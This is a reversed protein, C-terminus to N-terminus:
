PPPEGKRPIPAAGWPRPLLCTAHFKIHLFTNQCFHRFFCFPYGAVAQRRLHEATDTQFAASRCLLNGHNRCVQGHGNEQFLWRFHYFAPADHYICPQQKVDDGVRGAIDDPEPCIIFLVHDSDPRLVRSVIDHEETCLM